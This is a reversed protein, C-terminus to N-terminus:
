RPSSTSEPSKSFVLMSCVLHEPIATRITRRDRAITLARREIGDGSLAYCHRIEDADPVNIEVSVGHTPADGAVQSKGFDVVTVLYDGKPSRFINGKM